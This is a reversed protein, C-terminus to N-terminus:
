HMRMKSEDVLQKVRGSVSEFEIGDNGKMNTESLTLLDEKRRVFLKGIEKRKPEITSCECM